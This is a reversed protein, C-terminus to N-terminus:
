WTYHKNAGSWGREVVYNHVVRSLDIEQDLQAVHMEWSRSSVPCSAARMISLVNTRPESPGYISLVWDIVHALISSSDNKSSGASDTLQIVYKAAYSLNNRSLIAPSLLCACIRSAIHSVGDVSWKPLIRFLNSSTSRYCFRVTNVILICWQKQSGLYANQPVLTLKIM